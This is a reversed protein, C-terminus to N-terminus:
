IILCIKQYVQILQEKSVSRVDIDIKGENVNYGRCYIAPNGTKLASLVQEANLGLEKEDFFLLARAIDRGASDWIVSATIGNITNVQNIFDSMKDVMEEGSEHHRIYYESIAQTLGLISEKGVKMARGIGQSQLRVYDIYQKRGIVLGSTPGEIAKTGSYLVIDAGM